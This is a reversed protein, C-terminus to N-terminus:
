GMKGTKAIPFHLFIQLIKVRCASLFPFGFFGSTKGRIKRYLSFFRNKHAACFCCSGHIFAIGPISDLREIRGRVRKSGCGSFGNEMM